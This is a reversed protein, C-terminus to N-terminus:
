KKPGKYNDIRDSIEPFVGRLLDSLLKLDSVDKPKNLDIKM